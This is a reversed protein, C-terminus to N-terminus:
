VIKFNSQDLSPSRVSPRYRSSHNLLQDEPTATICLSQLLRQHYQVDVLSSCSLSFLLLFCRPTLHLSFQQM